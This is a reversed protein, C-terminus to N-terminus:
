FFSSQTVPPPENYRIFEVKAEDAEADFLKMLQISGAVDKNERLWMADLFTFITRQYIVPIEFDATAIDAFAVTAPIKIYPVAPTCAGASWVYFSGNWISYYYQGSLRLLVADPYSMEMLYIYPELKVKGKIERIFDDPLAINGTSTITPSWVTRLVESRKAFRLQAENVWRLLKTPQSAYLAVKADDTSAWEQLTNAITGM